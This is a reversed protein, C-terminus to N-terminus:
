GSRFVVLHMMDRDTRAYRQAAVKCMCGTSYSTRLSAARPFPRESERQRSSCLSCVSRPMVPLTSVAVAAHSADRGLM